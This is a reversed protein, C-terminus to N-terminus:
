RYFYKVNKFYDDNYGRVIFYDQQMGNVKGWFCIKKLQNEEQLILLSTKLTIQQEESLYEGSHYKPILNM